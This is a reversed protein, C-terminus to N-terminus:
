PMTRTFVAVASSSVDTSPREAFSAALDSPSVYDEIVLVLVEGPYQVLFEHVGTLAKVLPVAGLECFGHCLYLGRAGEPKGALRDRIRLAADLGEKGVAKEFKERSGGESDLDTKVRGEVPIGYHVDFLLARIGDELQARIGREQQPFLWDPVDAASMANHTGPFVVEDLRRGCLEPAGNCADTVASPAAARPRGFWAIGAVLVAAAGLVVAVRTRTARAVHTPAAGEPRPAARLALEFMEGLGVFAALGGLGAVALAAANEPWLLAFAGVGILVAGRLVRGRVGGPPDELWAMMRRATERPEFRAVLSHSAAELVLGIGGLVFAWTRLSGTFADWLGAAARQALEDDPLTSILARGAPVLLFLALGAALLDLGLRGLARRPNTALLVGALAALAGGFGLLGALWQSRRSVEWLRVV